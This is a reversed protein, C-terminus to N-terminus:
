KTWGFRGKLLYNPDVFLRPLAVGGGKEFPYRRERATKIKATTRTLGEPIAADETAPRARTMLRTVPTTMDAVIRPPYRFLSAEILRSAAQTATAVVSPTTASWPGEDATASVIPTKV